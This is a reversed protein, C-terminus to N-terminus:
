PLAKISFRPADIGTEQVKIVRSFKGTLSKLILEQQENKDSFSVKIRFYCSIQHFEPLINRNLNICGSNKKIGESAELNVQFFKTKL